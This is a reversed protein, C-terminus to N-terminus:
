EDNEGDVRDRRLGAAAPRIRGRARGRARNRAVEWSERAEEM